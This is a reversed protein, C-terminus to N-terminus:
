VAHNGIHALSEAHLTEPRENEVSVKSEVGAPPAVWKGSFAGGQRTNWLLAVEETGAYGDVVHHATILHHDCNAQSDLGVSGSLHHGKVGRSLPHEGRRRPM